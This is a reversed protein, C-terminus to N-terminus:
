SFKSYYCCFHASAHTSVGFHILRLTEKLAEQRTDKYNNYTQKYFETVDEVVQLCFVNFSWAQAFCFHTDTHTHTTYGTRTPSVGSGLPWKWLSSSSCSSSSSFSSFLLWVRFLCPTSKLLVHQLLLTRTKYQTFTNWPKERLWRIDTYLSARSHM